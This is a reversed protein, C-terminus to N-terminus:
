TLPEPDAAAISLLLVRREGARTQGGRHIAEPDFLNLQGCPGTMVRERALLQLTEPAGPPMDGGFEAKVQLQLPLSLFAHRQAPARSVLPSRDFARRRIRGPGAQEWRHSTPIMGFPGQDPGVDGLYLVAKLIASGSSDIHFGVTPPTEIRPDRFVDAAWVQDPPNVMVAATKLKAGAGFYNATTQGAGSHKVIRAALDWIEPHTRSGIPTQALKFPITEGAARAAAQRDRIAAIVPATSELLPDLLKAKLQLACCGESAIAAVESSSEGGSGSRDGFRRAREAEVREMEAILPELKALAQTGLEPDPDFMLGYAPHRAYDIRPM